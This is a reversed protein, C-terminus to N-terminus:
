AHPPFVRNLTPQPYRAAALMIGPMLTMFDDHAKAGSTHEGKDDRSGTVKEIKEAKQVGLWTKLREM